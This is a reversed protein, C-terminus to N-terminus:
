SFRLATHLSFWESSAALMHIYQLFFVILLRTYDPDTHLYFRVVSCEITHFLMNCCSHFAKYIVYVVTFITRGHFSVWAHRFFLPTTQLPCKSINRLGVSTAWEYCLTEQDLVNIGCTKSTLITLLISIIWLAPSSKSHFLVFFRRYHAAIDNVEFRMVITNWWQNFNWCSNEGSRANIDKRRAIIETTFGGELLQRNGIFSAREISQVTHICEHFSFVSNHM